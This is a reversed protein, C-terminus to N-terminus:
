GNSNASTKLLTAWQDEWFAMLLNLKQDQLPMFLGIKQIPDDDSQDSKVRCSHPFYEPEETVFKDLMLKKKKGFNCSWDSKNTFVRYFIQSFYQPNSSYQFLIVRLWFGFKSVHVELCHRLLVTKTPALIIPASCERWSCYKQTYGMDCFSKGHTDVFCWFCFIICSM